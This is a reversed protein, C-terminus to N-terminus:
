KAYCVLVGLLIAATGVGFLVDKKTMTEVKDKHRIRLAGAEGGSRAFLGLILIAMWVSSPVHMPLRVKALDVYVGGIAGFLILAVGIIQSIKFRIVM